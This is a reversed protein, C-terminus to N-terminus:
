QPLEIGSLINELHDAIDLLGALFFIEISVNKNALEGVTTWPATDLSTYKKYYSRNPIMTENMNNVIRVSAGHFRSKSINSMIGLYQQLDKEVQKLVYSGTVYISNVKYLHLIQPSSYREKAKDELDKLIKVEAGGEDFLMFAALSGLYEEVVNGNHEGLLNSGCNIVIYRIWNFDAQSIPIGALSFVDAINSLQADLTGGLSGGGFGINNNYYDYSKVTTSVYFSNEISKLFRNYKQRITEPTINGAELTQEYLKWENMAEQLNKTMNESNHQFQEYQGLFVKMNQTYRNRQNTTNEAFGEAVDKQFASIVNVSLQEEISKTGVNQEILEAITQDRRDLLTEFSTSFNINDYNLSVTIIDNKTKTRGALNVTIHGKDSTEFNIAGLLEGIEPGRVSVKLNQLGDRIMTNLENKLNDRENEAVESIAKDVSDAIADRLTKSANGTITSIAKKITSLKMNSDTGFIQQFSKLSKISENLEEVIVGKSTIHLTLMVDKGQSDKGIKISEDKEIQQLGDRIRKEYKALRQEIKKLNKILSVINSYKKYINNKDLYDYLAQREQSLQKGKSEKAARLRSFMEIFEEASANHLDFNKDMDKFAKLQKGSLAWNNYFGQIRYSQYIDISDELTEVLKRKPINRYQGNIIQPIHKQAIIVLNNIIEGQVEREIAAYDIYQNTCNQQIIKKIIILTNKDEFISNFQKKIWNSITTDVTKHVSKFATAAGTLREYVKGKSDKKAAYSKNKIYYANIEQDYQKLSRELMAASEQPTLQRAVVLGNLQKERKSRMEKLADQINEIRKKEYSVVAKANNLGSLLINVLSLFKNYDIIENEKISSFFLEKIQHLAPIQEIDKENFTKEFDNLRQKFYAIENKTEYEIGQQVVKLCETIKGRNNNLFLNESLNDKKFKTEGKGMSDLVNIRANHYEENRDTDINELSKYYVYNMNFGDYFALNGLRKFNAQISDM